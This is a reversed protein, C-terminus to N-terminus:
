IISQFPFRDVCTPQDVALCVTDASDIVEVWNGDSLVIFYPPNDVQEFSKSDSRNFKGKCHGECGNVAVMTATFATEYSVNLPM